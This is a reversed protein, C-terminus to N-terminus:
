TPSAIVHPLDQEESSGYSLTPLSLPLSRNDKWSYLNIRGPM